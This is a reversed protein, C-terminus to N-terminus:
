VSGNLSVFLRMLLLLLNLKLRFFFRFWSFVVESQWSPLWENGVCFAIFSLWGSVYESVSLVLVFSVFCPIKERELRGCFHVYHLIIASSTKLTMKGITEIIFLPFGITEVSLANSKLRFVIGIAIIQPNDWLVCVFPTNNNNNKKKENCLVFAICYRGISFGTWNALHHATAHGAHFEHM